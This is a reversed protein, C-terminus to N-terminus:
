ESKRRSSTSRKEAPFTPVSDHLKCLEAYYEENVLDRRSSLIQGFKIFTPGLEELALRLREAPPKALLGSEHTQLEANEIGMVRQLAVLKLVDAFGYKFLVRIIENYRPLHTAFEVASRLQNIVAPCLM